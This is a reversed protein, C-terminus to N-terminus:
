RACYRKATNIMAEVDGFPADEFEISSVETLLEDISEYVPLYHREKAADIKSNFDM